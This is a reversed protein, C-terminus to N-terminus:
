RPAVPGRVRKMIGSSGAIPPFAQLQKTAVFTDRTYGSYPKSHVGGARRALSLFTFLIFARVTAIDTAIVTLADCVAGGRMTM